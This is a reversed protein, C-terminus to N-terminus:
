PSTRAGFAFQRVKARREDDRKREHAKKCAQKCFRLSFRRHIILGLSGGCHACQKM